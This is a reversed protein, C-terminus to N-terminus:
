AARAIRPFRKLEAPLEGPRPMLDNVVRYFEAPSTAGGITDSVFLKSSNHGFFVPGELVPVRAPRFHKLFMGRKWTRFAQRYQDAALEFEEPDAFGECNKACAGAFNAEWGPQMGLGYEHALWQQVQAVAAPLGLSAPFPFGQMWPDTNTDRGTERTFQEQSERLKKLNHLAVSNSEPCAGFISFPRSCYVFAKGLAATKLASDYDVIPHGFLGGEFRKRMRELLARSLAAHYISFGSAITAGADDWRFARRKMLEPTMDFFNNKTPVGIATAKAGETVWTYTLNLWGFAELNPRLSIATKLADILDPDILDDDGILSVWDGTTAGVSREWNEQMSLMRDASRLYRVRKDALHGAMFSDMVSPDDSNDAFVFEVDERPNDLLFAITEKFYKQRNRSPVCISLVPTTM